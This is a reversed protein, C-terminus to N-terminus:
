NLFKQKNEKVESSDLLNLNPEVLKEIIVKEVFKDIPKIALGLAVFGGITKLLKTSKLLRSKEFRKITDAAANELYNVSIKLDKDQKYTEQLKIFSNYLKNSMEKPKKNATLQEHMNFIRDICKDAYASVKEKENRAMAEPHRRKFIMKFFTKIPNEFKSERILNERKHELQEFFEKKFETKKGKYESLERRSIFDSLFNTIEEKTQLSIGDKGAIAAVSALKQGAIVAGTPMLVSALGQFIAQKTGRKADPNYSDKDSKYKDYVDAGIYLLAPAWLALGLKPAVESIAAGIENTYALGRTPWKLLPDEYAKFSPKEEKKNTEKQSSSTFTLTKLNANVHNPALKIM